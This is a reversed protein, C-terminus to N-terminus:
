NPNMTKTDMLLPVISLTEFDFGVEMIQEMEVYIGEDPNVVTDHRESKLAM